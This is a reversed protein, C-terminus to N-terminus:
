SREINKMVQLSQLAKLLRSDLTYIPSKTREYQCSKWLDLWLYILTQKVSIFIELFTKLWIAKYLPKWSITTFGFGTWPVMWFELCICLASAFRPFIHGLSHLNTQTYSKILQCVTSGLCFVHKISISRNENLTWFGFVLTIVRPLWLPCLVDLLGILVQLLKMCRVRPFFRAFTDRTITTKSKIPHFIPALTKRWDYPPGLVVLVLM